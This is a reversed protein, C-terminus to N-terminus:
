WPEVGGEPRAVPGRGVVHVGAFGQKIAWDWAGVLGLRDVYVRWVRPSLYAPSIVDAVGTAKEIARKADDVAQRIDTPGDWRHFDTM